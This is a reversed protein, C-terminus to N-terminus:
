FDYYDGHRRQRSLYFESVEEPQMAVFIPHTGNKSSTIAHILSNHLLVSHIKVSDRWICEVNREFSVIKGFYKTQAFDDLTDTENLRFGSGNYM